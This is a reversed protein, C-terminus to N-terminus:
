LYPPNRGSKLQFMLSLGFRRSRLRGGKLSSGRWRNDQTGPMDGCIKPKGAEMVTHAGGYLRGRDTRTRQSVTARQQVESTDCAARDGERGAGQARGVKGDQHLENVPTRM